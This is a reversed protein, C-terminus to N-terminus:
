VAPGQRSRGCARRRRRPRPDRRLVAGEPLDGRALLPRIPGRRGPFV